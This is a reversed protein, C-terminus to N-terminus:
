CPLHTDSIFVITKAGALRGLSGFLVRPAAGNPRM